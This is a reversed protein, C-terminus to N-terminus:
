INAHSKLAIRIPQIQRLTAMCYQIKTRHCPGPRTTDKCCIPYGSSNILFYLLQEFVCNGAKPWKSGKSFLCLLKGQSVFHVSIFHRTDSVGLHCNGNRRMGGLDPNLADELFLNCGERIPLTGAQRFQFMVQGMGATRNQTGKFTM